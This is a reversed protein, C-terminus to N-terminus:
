GTVEDDEGILDRIRGPSLDGVRRPVYYPDAWRSHGIPDHLESALRRALPPNNGHAALREEAAHADQAARAMRQRVHTIEDALGRPSSGAAALVLRGVVAPVLRAAKMGHALLADDGTADLLTVLANVSEARLTDIALYAAHLRGLDIREAVATMETVTVGCRLATIVFTLDDRDWDTAPHERLAALFAAEETSSAPWGRGSWTNWLSPSSM